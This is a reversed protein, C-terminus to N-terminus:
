PATFTDQWPGRPGTPEDAWAVISVQVAAHLRLLAHSPWAKGPIKINTATPEQQACVCRARARVGLEAVAM